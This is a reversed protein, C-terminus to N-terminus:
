PRGPPPPGPPRRRATELAAVFRAPGHHRAVHARAAAPAAPDALFASVADLLADDPAAARDLATPPELLLGPGVAEAVGGVACGIAPTHRAAGELIAMGLGEQHLGNRGARPLLVVAERRALRALVAARPLWGTATVAPGAGPPAPAGILELPRGLLAALRVARDIGKHPTPRAVCVLGPVRPGPALDPLALPMPLRPHPGGLGLRALERALFHSVPLWRVRPGLAALAPPPAALATLDSGHAAVLLPPLSLPLACLAAAAPWTACLLADASGLLPLAALALWHGGWRRWSRGRARRVPYPPRGQPPVRLRPAVVTVRDGAALLARAALDTWSGIGGGQEPGLEPSLILWRTPSM